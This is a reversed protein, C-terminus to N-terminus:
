HVSASSPNVFPLPDALWQPHSLSDTYKKILGGLRPQHSDDIVPRAREIVDQAGPGESPGLRSRFDDPGDASKRSDETQTLPSPDQM